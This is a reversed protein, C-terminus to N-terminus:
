TMRRRRMADYVREVVVAIAVETLSAGTARSRELCNDYAAGLSQEVTAFVEERTMKMASLSRSYEDMSAVVGGANALVDPAVMVGRQELV